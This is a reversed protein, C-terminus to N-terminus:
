GGCAACALLWCLAFLLSTLAIRYKAGMAVFTPFKNILIQREVDRLLHAYCLWPAKEKETTSFM